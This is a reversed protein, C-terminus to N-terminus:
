NVCQVQEAAQGNRDKFQEQIEEIQDINDILANVCDTDLQVNAMRRLTAFARDNSWAEKYPRKSVLADFVDAVAVIRAELPIESGTLGRPYGSGNVAEHHCEAINRLIDTQEFANLDFDSLICDIIERGKAPHTQMLKKEEENLKGPKHLIRDPIAIKGIDHLAAFSFVHEIYDDSLQYRQALHAAILRAYRAMREIHNGTEFDRFHTIDQATKVSSLLTRIANQENIILMAILHCYVDLQPLVAEDFVNAQLSNLFVFGYFADNHYMPMTYSAAFGHKQIKKTHERSGDSFIRLNNVVRPKQLTVIEQLSAADALRSQYNVLPPEQDPTSHIYTKLIDTKNDYVAVALRDVFPYQSRIAAHIVTLKYSLPNQDNLQQLIDEHHYLYRRQQAQSM